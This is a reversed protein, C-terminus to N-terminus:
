LKTSVPKVCINPNHTKGTPVSFSLNYTVTGSGNASVTITKQSSNNPQSGNVTVKSTFKVSTSNPNSVTLKATASNTGTQVTYNTVSVNQLSKGPVTVRKCPM